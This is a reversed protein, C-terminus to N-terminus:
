SMHLNGGGGGGSNQHKTKNTHIIQTTRTLKPRTKDTRWKNRYEKLRGILTYSMKKRKILPFDPIISAVSDSSLASTDKSCFHFSKNCCLFLSEMGFDYEQCNNNM